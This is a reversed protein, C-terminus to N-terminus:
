IMLAIFREMYFAATQASPSVRPLVSEFSHNCSPLPIFITPVDHDRLTFYLREAECFDVMLDHTGHILMTPPSDNNIHQLPSLLDYQEPTEAVTGGFLGAIGKTLTHQAGFRQQLIQGIKSNFISGFRAEVDDHLARMNPPGYYSVVARVSFDVTTNAPQFASHNATYASLLSLHAGASQGALVIREPNIQYKQANQKLWIIARKVDKVMGQMSTKPNLTYDIDMILHGQHSLQYFYPFKQINRKGYAWGGGHVYILALGSRKVNKPPHMIDAYLREDALIDPNKGFEVHWEIPGHPQLRVIPFWRRKALKPQIDSPLKGQWVQGFAQTFNQDRPRTIAAFHRLSVATGWLGLITLIWDRQKIGVVSM